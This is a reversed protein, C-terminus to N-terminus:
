RVEITSRCESTPIATSCRGTTISGRVGAAPMIAPQVRAKEWLHQTSSEIAIIADLDSMVEGWDLALAMGAASLGSVDIKAFGSGREFILVMESFRYNLSYDTGALVIPSPGRPCAACVNWYAIPIVTKPTLDWDTGWSTFSQIYHTYIPGNTISTFAVFDNKM